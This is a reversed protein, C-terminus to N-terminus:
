FNWGYRVSFAGLQPDAADSRIDLMYLSYDARIFSGGRFDYRLGLSGGYSFDTGSFTRYYRSCIYGWYPHWWCGTVPPGKAVNSDLTTWGIGAEAFPTFPGEMFNLTGKFRFNYQTATRDIRVTSGPNDADAIIANYDPRLYDFDAGLAFMDSFNYGLSFALGLESDIDLSSGGKGKAQESFQYIGGVSFDWTNERSASSRYGQALATVPLVLFLIFLRINKMERAKVHRRSHRVGPDGVDEGLRENSEGDNRQSLIAGPPAHVPDIANAWWGDVAHTWPETAQRNSECSAPATVFAAAHRAPSQWLTSGAARVLPQLLWRRLRRLLRYRYWSIWVDQSLRRLLRLRSGAM